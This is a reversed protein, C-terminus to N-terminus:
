VQLSIHIIAGSKMIVTLINTDPNLCVDVASDRDKIPFLRRSTKGSKEIQVVGNGCAVYVNQKYDVIIGLPKLLHAFHKYEFMKQGDTNLAIVANKKKDSVFLISEEFNSALFLPKKFIPIFDSESSDYYIQFKLNCKKDFLQIQWESIMNVETKIEMSVAFGGDFCAIGFCSGSTKFMEYYTDHDKFKYVTRKCPITFYCENSKRSTCIDGPLIFQREYQHIRKSSINGPKSTKDSMNFLKWVSTETCCTCFNDKVFVEGFVLLKRRFTYCGCRAQLKSLHKHEFSIRESSHVVPRTEFVPLFTHPCCTGCLPESCRQCARYEQGCKNCPLTSSKSLDSFRQASSASGM